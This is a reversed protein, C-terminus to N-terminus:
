QSISFRKSSVQKTFANYFDEGFKEKFRKTDFRTTLVDVFRVVFRGARLEDVGRLKLEEKISDKLEDARTQFEKATAELENMRVIRNELENISMNKGKQGNM